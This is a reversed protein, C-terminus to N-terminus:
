AGHREPPNEGGRGALGLVRLLEPNGTRCERPPGCRMKEFVIVSDFFSLSFTSQTFETVMDKERVHYGNLFDVLDKAKEVFSGEKKLGGGYEKWYCAHADEILYVGNNNLLPYLFEFSASIDESRHSGDDLVIDPRGFEKIISSLFKADSQSGIRVKCQGSEHQACSAEIDIGVITAFPGFYKEWLSLSGGFDVGIELMFVSKNVFPRFFREYIPFYHVWKNAIKGTNNLFDQYLM